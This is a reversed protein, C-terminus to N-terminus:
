NFAMILADFHSVCSCFLIYRCHNDIDILTIHPPGLRAEVGKVSGEEIFAWPPDGMAGVKLTGERVNALTREPDSPLRDCAPLVLIAHLIPPLM